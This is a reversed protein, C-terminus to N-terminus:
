VTTSTLLVYVGNLDDHDYILGFTVKFGFHIEYIDQDKDLTSSSRYMRAGFHRVAALFRTRDSKSHAFKM